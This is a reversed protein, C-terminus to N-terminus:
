LYLQELILMKWCPHDIHWTGSKASNNDSVIVKNKRIFETYTFM